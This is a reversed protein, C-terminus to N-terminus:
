PPPISLLSLPLPPLLFFDTTSSLSFSSSTCFLRDFPSRSTLLSQRQVVPPTPPPLIPTHSSHTHTSRSPLLLSFLLIPVHPCHATRPPLSSPPLATSTSPRSTIATSASQSPSPSPKPVAHMSQRTHSPHARHTRSTCAQRQTTSAPAPPHDHIRTATLSPQPLAPVTHAEQRLRPLRTARLRCRSGNAADEGASRAQGKDRLERGQGVTGLCMPDERMRAVCGDAAATKSRRARRAMVVDLCM